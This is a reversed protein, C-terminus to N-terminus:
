GRGLRPLHEPRVALGHAYQEAHRRRRRAVVASPRRRASRGCASSRRVTGDGCCRLRTTVRTAWRVARAGQPHFRPRDVARRAATTRGRHRHVVHSPADRSGVRNAGIMELTSPFAVELDIQMHHITLPDPRHRRVAGATEPRPGVASSCLDDRKRFARVRYERDHLVELAEGDDGVPDSPLITSTDFLDDTVTPDAM